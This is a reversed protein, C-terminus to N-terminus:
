PSPWCGSDARWGRRCRATRWLGAGALVLLIMKSWQLAESPFNAFAWATGALLVSLSIAALIGLLSDDFEPIATAQPQNMIPEINLM